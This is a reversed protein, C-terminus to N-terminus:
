QAIETTHWDETWSGAREAKRWEYRKTHAKILIDVRPTGALLGAAAASTTRYGSIVRINIRRQIRTLEVWNRESTEVVRSWVPAAYLMVSHLVNSYLKRVTRNPGRLNPMLTGLARAVRNAKEAIYKVHPRFSWRNDIIVGLYKIEELIQINAGEINIRYRQPFKGRRPTFMAIETKRAAIQLDLEKIKNIIKSAARQAAAIADDLDSGGTIIITDDAYCITSGEDELEVRLIPDYTLNWLMPGLVSGQPVGCTIEMQHTSGNKRAFCVRRCKLYDDIIAQLYQPFNWEAMAGRIRSWSVSGFANAIDIGIVIAYRGEETIDKVRKRFEYIADITSKQKRFGFQSESLDEREAMHTEMRAVIIKELVKGADDLMCLPRYAAPGGGPKSTKPVLVLRAEKWINPFKAKQLCETYLARVTHGITRAVVQWTTATVGDPGPAKGSKTKDLVTSLEGKTVAPVETRDYNYEHTEDAPTIPFLTEVAAVVDELAMNEIPNPSNGKLKRMVARYPRGWPDKNIMQLLENWAQQRAHRIAYRLQKRLQKYELVKQEMRVTNKKKKNYKVARNARKCERRLAELGETWWFTKGPQAPPTRRAMAVDSSQTVIETIRNALREVEGDAIEEGETTRGGNEEHRPDLALLVARFKDWDTNKGKWAPFPNKRERRGDGETGPTGHWFTIYM